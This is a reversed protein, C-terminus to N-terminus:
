YGSSIYNDMSVGCFFGGSNWFIPNGADHPLMLTKEYAVMIEVDNMVLIMVYDIHVQHHRSVAVDFLRVLNTIMQFDFYFLDDGSCGNVDMNLWVLGGFATLCFLRKGVVRSPGMGKM